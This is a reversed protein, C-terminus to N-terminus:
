RSSCVYDGKIGTNMIFTFESRDDSNRISTYHNSGYVCAVGSRKRGELSARREGASTISGIEANQYVFDPENLVQQKPQEQNVSLLTNGEFSEAEPYYEIKREHCQDDKEAM